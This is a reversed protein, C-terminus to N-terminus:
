GSGTQKGTHHLEELIPGVRLSNAGFPAFEELAPRWESPLCFHLHCLQKEQFHIPKVQWSINLCNTFKPSQYEVFIVHITYKTFTIQVKCIWAVSQYKISTLGM